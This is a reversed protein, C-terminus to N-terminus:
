EAFVSEGGDSSLKVTPLYKRVLKYFAVVVPDYPKHATKCFEFESAGKTVSATEHSDDGVGNFMIVRAGFSPKTGPEGGAGALPVDSSALLTKVEKWQADTFAPKNGMYHTYGM